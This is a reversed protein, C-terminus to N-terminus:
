YISNTGTLTPLKHTCSYNPILTSIFSRQNTNSAIDRFVIKPMPSGVIRTKADELRMYYETVCYQRDLPTEETKVRKASGSLYNAAAFDGIQIHKGGYVPLFTEKGDHYIGYKNVNNRIQADRVFLSSAGSADFERMYKLGLDEFNPNLVLKGDEEHTSMKILLEYQKRSTLAILKFQDGTLLEMLEPTQNFVYPEDFTANEWDELDTRYFATYVGTAPAGKQCVFAAFMFSSHIEFIKKRNSFSFFWEWRSQEFLMKRLESSGTETGLGMDLILGIRGCPKAIHIAFETFLKYYNKDGIGQYLFPITFEGEKRDITGGRNGIYNTLSLVQNNYHLWEKQISDSQLLRKKVVKMEKSAYIDILPHYNVLFEKTEVKIKEWPPNGIVADFGGKEFVEPFELEWHFFKVENAYRFVIRDFEPDGEALMRKFGNGSFRDKFKVFEDHSIFWLATWLDMRRKISVYNPSTLLKNYHDYKRTEDFDVIIQERNEILNKIETDIFEHLTTQNIDIRSGLTKVESKFPKTKKEKENMEEREKIANIPFRASEIEAKWAGVLSNGVKLKHDLFKFPLTNDMTELWLALKALEVALPNIDVGYICREIIVRKLKRVLLEWNYSGNSVTHDEYEVSISGNIKCFVTTGNIRIRNSQELSWALAESLYNLASILFSGSGMAPDVVDLDVIDEPSKFSGDENRVLPELARRVTPKVLGPKTYFTGSGKRSGNWASIYLKGPPFVELILKDYPLNTKTIKRFRDVFKNIEVRIEDIESQGIVEESPEYTGTKGKYLEKLELDTLSNLLQLSIIRTEKGTNLVVAVIDEEKVLRVQYDLLGEYIMGIYETGLEAFNVPMTITKKRNKVSTQVPAFKLKSLIQYIEYNTVIWNGEEFFSLAKGLPTKIKNGPRFLEGSYAPISFDSFPSGYYVLNFLALIRYWANKELNMEEPSLESEQEKLDKWIKELSYGQQYIPSSGVPLLGRAEAYLIVILRLMIRIAAHYIPELKKPTIIEDEPEGDFLASLLKRTGDVTAAEGSLFLEIAERIQEGIKTSLVSQSRRSQFVYHELPKKHESLIGFLGELLTIGEDNLMDHCNWTVWALNDLTAYILRIQSGNTFIGFRIGHDVMERVFKAQRQRMKGIGLKQNDHVIMVFLDVNSRKKGNKPKKKSSLLLNGIQNEEAKQFSIKTGNSKVVTWKSHDSLELSTFLKEVWKFRSLKTLDNEKQASFTKNVQFHDFAFRLEDILNAPLTNPGEPFLEEIVTESFMFGEKELQNWWSNDKFQVLQKQLASM